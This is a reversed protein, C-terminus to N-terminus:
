FQAEDSDVFCDPCEADISLKIRSGLMTQLMESIGLITASADFVEPKLAQRRAFALLQGTLKAARDATDSIADVYRRRREDSLDRTRLLDASGRIVTLLNNFDHAIGGTLQGIAEMKQSQRLAEHAEKLQESREFVRTELDKQAQEAAEFLRANDIGVAAQGALGNMLREAREDFVNTDPHGFFLGGIVEDSRSVVPVALYSRVPLHGEPLGRNPANQGYRPDLHLDAIRVVGENNFTPAFIKTPRPLGFGEFASKDAGSLSYLLLREGDSQHVNYFFAGFAAGTLKVGADVVKQVLADTSLEAALQAGTDNLLQLAEREHDREARAQVTSSKDVGQAFIGIVQESEDRIPQYVFQIFRERLDGSEHRYAVPVPESHFAKGSWFAEDLTNIFGQEVLEPLADSAAKGLLPKSGALSRYAANAVRFVHNPGELIAIYSPAEEFVDAAKFLDTM